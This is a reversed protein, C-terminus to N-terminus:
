RWEVVRVMGGEEDRRLVAEREVRTDRPGVARAHVRITRNGDVFANGDHEARDDGVWVILYPLVDRPRDPVMASLSGCLFMQWRTTDPGRPDATNTDRQLDSTMAALDLAQGWMTTGSERLTSVVGGSLAASWDPLPVLEQIARELAADAAYAVALRNPESSASMREVDTMTATAFAMAAILVVVVMALVVAVGDDDAVDTRSFL